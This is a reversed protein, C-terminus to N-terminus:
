GFSFDRAQPHGLLTWCRVNPWIARPHSISMPLSPLLQYNVVPLESAVHKGLSKLSRYFHSCGVFFFFSSGVFNKVHLLSGGSHQLALVLLETRTKGQSGTFGEAAAESCCMPQFCHSHLM